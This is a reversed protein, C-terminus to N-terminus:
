ASCLHLIICTLLKILYEAGFLTALFPLITVSVGKLIAKRTKAKEGYVEKFREAYYSCNPINIGALFGALAGAICGSVLDNGLLARLFEFLTGPGIGLYFGALANLLACVLTHVRFSLRSMLLAVIKDGYRFALVFPMLISIIVIILLFIIEESIKSLLVLIM